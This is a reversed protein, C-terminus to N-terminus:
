IPVGMEASPPFPVAGNTPQPTPLSRPGGIAAGPLLPPPASVSPPMEMAPQPLDLPDGQREAREALRVADLAARLLQKKSLKEAQKQIAPTPVFWEQLREQAEAQSLQRSGYAPGMQRRQANTQEVLWAAINKNQEQLKGLAGPQPKTRQRPM